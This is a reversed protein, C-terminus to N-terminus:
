YNLLKKTNKKKQTLSRDIGISRGLKGRNAIYLNRGLWSLESVMLM